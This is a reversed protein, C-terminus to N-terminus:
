RLDPVPKSGIFIIAANEITSGSSIIVGGDPGVAHTSFGINATRLANRVIVTDNSPSDPVFLGLFLTGPMSISLTAAQWNAKGFVNSLQIAFYLAEPDNAVYQVNVEGPHVSLTQELRAIVQPSFTRWAFQAKLREQEVRATAAEKEAGAARENAQGATEMATVLQKNSRSRLETQIRADMRGFIVEGVIGLAIAADATVTGLRNLISDYTPHVYAIVFEAIIAGVVVAACGWEWTGCSSSAIELQAESANITGNPLRWAPFSNRPNQTPSPIVANSNESM